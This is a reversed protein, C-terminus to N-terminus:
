YDFLPLNRSGSHVKEFVSPSVRKLTRMLSQVDLMNRSSLNREVWAVLEAVPPVPATRDCLLTQLAPLTYIEVQPIVPVPITCVSIVGIGIIDQPPHEISGYLSELKQLLTRSTNTEPLDCSSTSAEGQVTRAKLTIRTTYSRLVLLKLSLQVALSKLTANLEASSTLSAPSVFCGRMSPATAEIKPISVRDHQERTLIDLLQVVPDTDPTTPMKLKRLVTRATKSTITLNEINEDIQFFSGCGPQAGETGVVQAVIAHAPLTSIGIHLRASASGLHSKLKNSADIGAGTPVAFSLSSPSTIVVRNLFSDENMVM